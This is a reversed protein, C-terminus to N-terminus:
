VRAFDGTRRWWTRWVFVGCCALVCCFGVVSGAIAAVLEMQSLEDADSPLLDCGCSYYVRLPETNCTDVMRGITGDLPIVMPPMDGVGWGISNLCTPDNRGRDEGACLNGAALQGESNDGWCALERPTSDRIACTFTAGTAIVLALPEVGLKVGPSNIVNDRKIGDNGAVGLMGGYWNLGWCKVIGSTLRACTHMRGTAVAAIPGGASFTVAGWGSLVCSACWGYPVSGGVRGSEDEDYPLHGWMVITDDDRVVVVHEAGSSLAKAFQAGIDVNTLNAMDDTYNYPFAYVPAKNTFWYFNGLQGKQNDGFCRVNGGVLLVCTHYWGCSVHLVERGGFDIDVLSAMDGTAAGAEAVDPKGDWAGPGGGIGQGLGLGTRSGVGLAGFGPYIGYGDPVPSGVPVRGGFCRVGGTITRACTHYFGCSVQVAGAGGLNIPPLSAMSGPFDGVNATSDQGNQGHLGWGWCKLEGADGDLIACTHYAGAAIQVAYRYTGLFVDSVDDRMIFSGGSGVSTKSDVGLQGYDNNGWCRVAGNVLVCTHSSGAALVGEDVCSPLDPTEPPAITETETVISCDVIGSM